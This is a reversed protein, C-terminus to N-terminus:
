FSVYRQAGRITFCDADFHLPLAETFAVIRRKRFVVSNGKPMMAQLDNQSHYSSEPLIPEPFVEVIRFIRVIGQEKRLEYSKM